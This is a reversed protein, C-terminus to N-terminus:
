ARSLCTQMRCSSSRFQLCLMLNLGLLDYKTHFTVLGPSSKRAFFEQFKIECVFVTIKGMREYGDM